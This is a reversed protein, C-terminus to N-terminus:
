VLLKVIHAALALVTPRTHLTADGRELRHISGTFVGGLDTTNVHDTTDLLASKIEAIVHLGLDHCFTRWAQIQQPESALLIAHTGHACILENEASMRGGIDVLVLPQICKQVSDAYLQAHAPTFSAKNETKLKLALEPHSAATQHHWAGEGDPCATIVYPYPCLSQRSWNLLVEKLAFRLCSKGSRPPGALIIKM